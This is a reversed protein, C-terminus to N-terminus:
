RARVKGAPLSYLLRATARDADTLARVRVRPTMITGADRTHDLGILHGIEHLAIAHVASPDLPDGFSHHVALVIDADVIWWDDDRSWITKGSIPEGFRNTWTVHVEARACARTFAFRGPRGRRAWAAVADRGQAVNAADFDEIAPRAQVWVSLPRRRRDPWRALASDHEALIDEIYTGAAGDRLRRFVDEGRMGHAEVSGTAVSADRERPAPTEAATLAADGSSVAASVGGSAAREAHASRGAPRVVLVWSLPALVLLSLWDSRTM